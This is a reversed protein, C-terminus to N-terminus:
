PGSPQVSLDLPGLVDQGSAEDEQALHEKLCEHIQHLVWDTAVGAARALSGSGAHEVDARLVRGTAADRWLRVVFADYLPGLEATM